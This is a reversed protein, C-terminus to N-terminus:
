IRAGVVSQLVNSTVWGSVGDPGTVKVFHGYRSGLVVVAGARLDATAGADEYPSVLVGTPGTVVALSRAAGNSETFGGVGILFAVSLGLMFRRATSSGKTLGIAVAGSLGALWGLTVAIDAWEGPTVFSFARAATPTVGAVDAAAIASRVLSSRPALLLAREFAVIAEGRDGRTLDTQGQILFSQAQATEVALDHAAVVGIGGIAFSALAILAWTRARFVFRSHPSM